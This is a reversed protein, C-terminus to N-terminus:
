KSDIGECFRLRACGASVPAQIVVAGPNSGVVVAGCPYQLVVLASVLDPLGSSLPLIFIKNVFIKGWFHWGVKPRGGGPPPPSEASPVWFKWFPLCAGGGQPLTHLGSFFPKYRYISLCTSLSFPIHKITHMPLLCLIRAVLGSSGDDLVVSFSSRPFSCRDVGILQSVQAYSGRQGPRLLEQFGWSNFGAANSSSPLPTRSTGALLPCGSPRHADQAALDAADRPLCGVDSHRFISDQEWMLQVASQLAEESLGSLTNAFQPPSKTKQLATPWPVYVSNQAVLIPQEPLCFFACRPNLCLPICSTWFVPLFHCFM